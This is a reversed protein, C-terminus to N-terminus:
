IFAYYSHFNIKADANAKKRKSPKDISVGENFRYLKRLIKVGKSKKEYGNRFLKNLECFQYFEILQLPTGLWKDFSPSLLKSKVLMKELKLYKDLKTKNEILKGLLFEKPEVDELLNQFDGTEITKIYFELSKYLEEKIQILSNNILEACEKKHYYSRTSIVENNKLISINLQKIIESLELLRQQLDIDQNQIEDFFSQAKYIPYSEFENHFFSVIDIEFSYNSIIGSLSVKDDDEFKSHKIMLKASELNDEHFHSKDKSSFAPLNSSVFYKDLDGYSHFEESAISKVINEVAEIEFFNLDKIKIIPTKAYQKRINVKCDPTIEYIKCFFDIIENNGGIIFNKLERKHKFLRGTDDM